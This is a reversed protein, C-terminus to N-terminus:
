RHIYVNFGIITSINLFLEYAYEHKPDFIIVMNAQMDISQYSVM